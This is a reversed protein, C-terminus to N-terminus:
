KGPRVGSAASGAVWCSTILSLGFAEDAQRSQRVKTERRRGFHTEFLLWGGCM